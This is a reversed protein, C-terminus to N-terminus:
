DRSRSAMSVNMDQMMIMGDCDADGGIMGWIGPAVEKCGAMGGYTKNFGTTFDYTYIGGPATIANASLIALHNRHHVIGYLGNVASVSFFMPSTGDTAVISGDTKIFGAQRAIRTASTANAASTADRLEVLVWDVVGTPIAAVSETGNYNWPAMNFPQSLPIM